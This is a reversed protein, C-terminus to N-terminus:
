LTSYLPRNYQLSITVCNEHRIHPIKKEGLIFFEHPTHFHIIKKGNRVSGKVTLKLSRGSEQIELQAEILTLKDAPSNNIHTIIDGVKIGARKALGNKKVAVVTLPASQDCGGSIEMSWLNDVFSMMVSDHDPRNAPIKCTIKPLTVTFSAQVECM